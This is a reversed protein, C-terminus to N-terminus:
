RQQERAARYANTLAQARLTVPEFDGSAFDAKSVLEGGVGVATAGARVWADINAESVGGTPMFTTTPFPGRLASLYAPGGLSAPFVKVVDAGLDQALMVESPTLAGAMSTLGTALMAELVPERTGPSVLFQAGSGAAEIAQAPTTITGAGLLIDTGFETRLVDLVRAVDPTSFTVEIGIVGGRVIARVATIAAEPSPARIVSIVGVEELRQLSTKM